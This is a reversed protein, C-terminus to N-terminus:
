AGDGEQIDMAEDAVDNARRVLMEVRRRLSDPDIVGQEALEDVLAEMQYVVALVMRQIEPDAM